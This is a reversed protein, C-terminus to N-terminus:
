KISILAGDKVVGTGYWTHPKPYHPGEFSVRTGDSVPAKGYPSPQHVTVREGAALARKIAAKSTFDTDTYAM